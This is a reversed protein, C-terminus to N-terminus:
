IVARPYANKNKDKNADLGNQKIKFAITQYVLFRHVRFVATESLPTSPSTKCRNLQCIEDDQNCAHAQLILIQSKKKIWFFCVLLIKFCRPSPCHVFYFNEHHCIIRNVGQLNTQIVNTESCIRFSEDSPFFM